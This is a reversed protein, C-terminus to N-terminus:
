KKLLEIFAEALLDVTADNDILLTLMTSFVGCFSLFIQPVNDDQAKFGELWDKMPVDIYMNMWDNVVFEM